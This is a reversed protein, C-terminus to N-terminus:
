KSLCPAIKTLGPSEKKWWIRKPKREWPLMAFYVGLTLLVPLSPAQMEGRDGGAWPGLKGHAQAVSSASAREGGQEAEGEV